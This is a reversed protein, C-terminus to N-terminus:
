RAAGVSAFLGVLLGAVALVLALVWRRREARSMPRPSGSLSLPLRLSCLAAAVLLVGAIAGLVSPAPREWLLVRALRADLEGVGSGLLVLVGLVAVASALLSRFSPVTVSLADTVLVRLGPSKPANREDLTVPSLSQDNPEISAHEQTEM